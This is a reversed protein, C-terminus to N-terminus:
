KKHTEKKKGAGAKPLPTSNALETARGNPLIKVGRVAGAVTNPSVKEQIQILARGLAISDDLSVDQGSVFDNMAKPCIIIAQKYAYSEPNSFNALADTVGAWKLNTYRRPRDLEIEQLYPKLIAKTDWDIYFRLAALRPTTYEYGTIVFTIMSEFNDFPNEPKGWHRRAIASQLQPMLESFKDKTIATLQDFSVDKPLSRQLDNVWAGLEFDAIEKGEGVFRMCNMGLVGIAFHDQILFVKKTTTTSPCGSFEGNTANSKSDAFMAIGNKNIITLVTTAHAATCWAILTVIAVIPASASLQRTPM